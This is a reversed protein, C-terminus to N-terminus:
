GALFAVVREDGGERAWGLADADFEEDHITTDAGREVLFRVTELHGNNAAWHLGPAGFFGRFDIDAGQELLFRAAETRGNRAALYFADSIVARDDVPPALKVWRGEGDEGYGARAAHPALRGDPRWFASLEAVLGLGAAGALDLRAGRELLLAGVRDSGLTAAWHLPTAGWSTEAEVEADADLLLVAVAAHDHEAALHLPTKDYVDVADVLRADSGLLRAVTDAHGAAAAALIAVEDGTPGGYLRELRTLARATARAEAESEARRERLRARVAAPDTEALLEGADALSFGASRLLRIQRAREAQEARYRRYGTADDVEAPLLGLEDYLRLAKRSLGTLAAFRGITLLEPM